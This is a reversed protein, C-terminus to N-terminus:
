REREPSSTFPTRVTRLPRRHSEFAEHLLKELLRIQAYAAINDSSDLNHILMEGSHSDYDVVITGPVLTVVSLAIVQALDTRLVNFQAPIIEPTPPKQPRIALWAVQFSSQVLSYFFYGALTILPLIRIKINLRIEPASFIIMLLTGLALGVFFNQINFQEWLITWMLGLWLVSIVKFKM